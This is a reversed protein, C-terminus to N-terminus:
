KLAEGTTKLSNNSPPPPCAAAFGRSFSKQWRGAVELRVDGRPAVRCALTFGAQEEEICVHARSIPGVRDVCGEVVRVKCVGCGGNACGAPIGKRGLRLMGKLLSEDDACAYCEGTDAITIQCRQVPLNAAM